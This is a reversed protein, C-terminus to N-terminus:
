EKDTEQVNTAGLYSCGSGKCVSSVYSKPRHLKYEAQVPGMHFQWLNIELRCSHKWM